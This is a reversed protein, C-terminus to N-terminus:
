TGRASGLGAQGVVCGPSCPVPESRWGRQRLVTAVGLATACSQEMVQHWRLRMVLRGSVMDALDRSADRNGARWSEHNLRGDLEVVFAFEPYEVDRREVGTATLRVAQRVPTPLGHPREVRTLYGHELVSETGHEIDDLLDLVLRKRHLRPHLGIAKRVAKATVGRRGVQDALLGVVEAESEACEIALLLNHEFQLRPPETGARMQAALGTVLHYDIGDIKTIRRNRELALHVPQAAVDYASALCLAASEASLVAAWARQEPTLPGTHDVYVRPHVRCLENRRQARRVQDRSWGGAILQAYTVVGHQRQRQGALVRRALRREPSLQEPTLQDPM